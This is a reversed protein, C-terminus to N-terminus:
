PQCSASAHSLARKSTAKSRESTREIAMVVRLGLLEEGLYSKAPVRTFRNRLSNKNMEINDPM